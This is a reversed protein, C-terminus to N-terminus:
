STQTTITNDWGSFVMWKGVRYLPYTFVFAGLVDISYHVHQILLLSGVLLSGIFALVRDTARRFCLFMLVMTSTHGSYFLDKTIYVKGYFANTIPDIMPILGEPPNLPFLTISLMRSLSVLVYSYVFILFLAPSKLARVVLLLATAWIIGFIILSVDHPPLQNLLWDDLVPGSHQEITYFFSPFAALLAIFGALGIAFTRRFTPSTWAKPWTSNPIPKPTLISM